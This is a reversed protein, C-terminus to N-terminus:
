YNQHGRKLPIDKFRKGSKKLYQARDLDLKRRMTNYREVGVMGSKAHYKARIRRKAEGVAGVGDLNLAGCQQCKTSYHVTDAQCSACPRRNLM